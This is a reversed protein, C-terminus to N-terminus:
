WYYFLCYFMMGVCMLVFLEFRVKGLPIQPNPNIGYFHNNKIIQPLHPQYKQLHQSHM